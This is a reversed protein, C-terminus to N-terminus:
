PRTRSGTPSVQRLLHCLCLGRALWAATYPFLVATFPHHPRLQCESRLVSCVAQGEFSLRPNPSVCELCSVCLLPQIPHLPVAKCACQGGTHHTQPSPPTPSCSPSSDRLRFSKLASSYLCCRGHPIRGGSPCLDPVMRGMGGVRSSPVFSVAPYHLGTCCLVLAGEEEGRQGRLLSGSDPHIPTM